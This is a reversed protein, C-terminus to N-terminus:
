ITKGNINDLVTNINGIDQKTAYKADVELKTYYGSLDIATNGILEFRGEAVLWIYEDPVDVGSGSKPVLYIVGLQGTAPLSPVPLVSFKVITAIQENTYTKASELNNAISQRLAADDYVTDQAPIGLATIDDKTVVEILSVHGVEDVTVKFLGLAHPTYAPHVYKNSEAEIGDLKSKDEKSMLGDDEATVASYQAVYETDVWTSTTDDYEQWVNKEKNIRASKGSLGAPGQITGNDIWDQSTGDYVYIAYPATANIGYADGPEPNIVTAKLEDLTDYYGIIKFDKGPDGKEGRLKVLQEPTFDAYIFADGKDGKSAVIMWKMADTLLATNNDALSVFSSGLFSVLDLRDYEGQVWSGKPTLSAKGLITKGM